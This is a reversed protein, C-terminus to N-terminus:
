FKLRSWMSPKIAPEYGMIKPLDSYNSYLEDLDVKIQETAKTYESSREPTNLLILNMCIRNMLFGGLTTGYRSDFTGESGEVIRGWISVQQRVLNKPISGADIYHELLNQPIVVTPYKARTGWSELEAGLHTVRAGRIIKLIKNIQEAKIAVDHSQLIENLLHIANKFLNQRYYKGKRKYFTFTGPGDPNDLSKADALDAQYKFEKIRDELTNEKVKEDESPKIQLKKTYFLVGINKSPHFLGKQYNVIANLRTQIPRTVETEQSEDVLRTAKAKIVEMIEDFTHDRDFFGPRLYSYEPGTLLKHLESLDNLSSIKDIMQKVIFKARARESAQNSHEIESHKKSHIMKLLHLIFKANIVSENNEHVLDILETLYTEEKADFPPQTLNDILIQSGHKVWDLNTKKDFIAGKFSVFECDILMAGRLSVNKLSMVFFCKILKANNLIVNTMIGHNNETEFRVDSLEIGSLNCDNLYKKEEDQTFLQKADRSLMAKQNVLVSNWSSEHKVFKLGIQTRKDDIESLVTKPIQLKISLSKLKKIEDVLPTLQNNRFNAYFKDEDQIYGPSQVGQMYKREAEEYDKRDFESNLEIIKDNIKKGLQIFMSLNDYLEQCEKALARREKVQSDFKEKLSKELNNIRKLEMLEEIIKNLRVSLEAIKTIYQEYSIEKEDELTAIELKIKSFDERCKKVEINTKGVQLAVFEDVMANLHAVHIKHEQPTTQSAKQDPNIEKYTQVLVQYRKEVAASEIQKAKEEADKAESQHQDLKSQADGLAKDRANIVDEPQKKRLTKIVQEIEAICSKTKGSVGSYSYWASISLYGGSQGSLGEKLCDSVTQSMKYESLLRVYAGQKILADIMKYEYKKFHEKLKELMKIDNEIKHVQKTEDQNQKLIEELERRKDANEREIAAYSEKAADIESLQTNFITIGRHLGELRKTSKEVDAANLATIKNQIEELEKQYANLIQQQKRSLAEMKLLLEQNTTNLKLTNKHDSIIRIRSEIVIQIKKLDDLSLQHDSLNKDKLTSYDKELVEIDKDWKEAIKKRVSELKKDLLEKLKSIEEGNNNIVFKQLRSFYEKDKYKAFTNQLILIPNETMRKNAEELFEYIAYMDKEDDAEEIKRKINEYEKKYERKIKNYEANLLMEWRSEKEIIFQACKKVLDPNERTYSNISASTASVKGIIADTEDHFDQMADLDDISLLKYKDLLSEAYHQIRIQIITLKVWIQNHEPLINGVKALKSLFSEIIILLKYTKSDVIHPLWSSDLTLKVQITPDDKKQLIVESGNNKVEEYFDGNDKKWGSRVRYFEHFGDKESYLLYMMPDIYHAYSYLKKLESATIKSTLFALKKAKGWRRGTWSNWDRNTLFGIEKATRLIEYVCRIAYDPYQDRSIDDHTTAKQDPLQFQLPDGSKRGNKDATPLLDFVGSICEDFYSHIDDKYDDLSSKPKRLMPERGNRM